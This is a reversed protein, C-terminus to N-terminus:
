RGGMHSSAEATKTSHDIIWVESFEHLSLMIQDLEANYSVANIHLWDAHPRQGKRGAGGVYGIARLKELEEPKAVMAALTNEGFNLDILEPHVGVEGHNAKKEDFDQVLHDWAHWEWVVKGTTKGTPQVEIVSDALLYNDGVTEPRRGAAVAEKTTKKEWVILLVNGNPLRCVDHHSLKSDTSCTYDWVLKGDWTFEQVRGAAGGGFFPPNRVQGGRLLNGNELLYASQGANCDSEWTRVVRGQMDILYTTKSNIPALLTYGKCAKPENVILGVKSKNPESKPKESEDTTVARFEPAASGLALLTLILVTAAGIHVTFPPLQKSRVRM